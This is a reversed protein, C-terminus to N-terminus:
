SVIVAGVDLEIIKDQMTHDIADAECVSVCQMCESCVACMVCRKAEAVATEDDDFGIEIESFDKNRIESKRKQPEHRIETSIKVDPLEAIKLEEKSDIKSNLGEIVVAAMNGDAVAEIVSAPGRVVDGGAFIGSISTTLTDKGNLDIRQGIAIIV